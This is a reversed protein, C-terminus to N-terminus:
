FSSTFDATQQQLVLLRALEDELEAIRADRESISAMLRENEDKLAQFQCIIGQIQAEIAEDSLEFASEVVRVVRWLSVVLLLGSARGEVLGELILAGVVVVGDVVPGPRWFFSRGLAAALALTRILLIILIAIGGWHSVLALQDHDYLAPAARTNHHNTCSLLSSSLDLVTLVLDFLILSLFFLHAPTSELFGGMRTRWAAKRPRSQQPPEQEGQPQDHDPKHTRHLILQHLRQRRNWNSLLHKISSELLASIPLQNPNPNLQHQHLIEM